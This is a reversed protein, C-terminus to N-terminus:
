LGAGLLTAALAANVAAAQLPPPLPLRARVRVSDRVRAYEAAVEALSANHNAVRLALAEDSEPAGGEASRLAALLALMDKEQEPLLKTRLLEPVWTVDPPLQEPFLVYHFLAAHLDDCLRSYHASLVAYQELVEPWSYNRRNLITDLLTLIDQTRRLLKQLTGSFQQEGLLLVSTSSSAAM